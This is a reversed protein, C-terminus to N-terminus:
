LWTPGGDGYIERFAWQAVRWLATFALAVAILPSLVVAYAAFLVGCVAIVLVTIIRALMRVAASRPASRSPSQGPAVDNM